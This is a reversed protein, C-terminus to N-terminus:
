HANYVGGMSLVLRPYQVGVRTIKWKKGLYTVYKMFQFNEFAYTDSVISIQNSLILDDNVEQSTRNEFFRDLVDGYYPREVIRDRWVGPREEYNEAFGIIGHFKAM